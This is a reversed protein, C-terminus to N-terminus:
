EGKYDNFRRSLRSKIYANILSPQQNGMERLAELLEESKFLVTKYLMCDVIYPKIIDIFLLSNLLM